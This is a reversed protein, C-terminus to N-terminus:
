NQNLLEETLIQVMKEPEEEHPLHSSKDFIYIKSHPILKKYEFAMEVPLYKDHKGWIIIVNKLKILNTGSKFWNLNKQYEVQSLLNKSFIFPNYIEEITESDVKSKDFYLENEYSSRVDDKTIFYLIITGFPYALYKWTSKDYDNTDSLGSSDLLILNKVRNPNNQAFYMAWGGGWSNGLLDVSSLKNFDLFASLLNNISELTYDYNKPITSYGHGPFDITYVTFKKSLPEIVNRFSYSWSGGGHILVLPPGSGLKIYNIM